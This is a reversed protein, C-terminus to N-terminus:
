GLRLFFFAVSGVHVAVFVFLMATITLHMSLWARRVRYLSFIAKMEELRVADQALKEILTTYKRDLPKMLPGLAMILEREARAGDYDRAFRSFRTGVAWATKAAVAQVEPPAGELLEARRAIIQEREDAVDEEVQSDREIRTIVKPMWKSFALGFLGTTVQLFLLLILLSTIIGGLDLDSHLATALLALGGFWVHARAWLYMPGLQTRGAKDPDAPKDPHPPTTPFRRLRRRAFLASSALMFFLACGGLALGQPSFTRYDPASGYILVMALACALSLALLVLRSRDPKDDTTETRADAAAAGAEGIMQRVEPFYSPEVRIIAKTPCNHVCNAEDFGACLDCKSAIKPTALNKGTVRDLVWRDPTEVMTINDWPCRLACNSCGICFEHIAVEGTLKRHIAGTPCGIMCEPSECHRCSSPLLLPQHEEEEASRRRTLRKGRRTMKAHGHRSECAVVCNGCRTCLDLDITLLSQAIQAGEQMFEDVFIMGTKNSLEAVVPQNQTNLAKNLQDSWRRDGRGMDIRKDARAVVIDFQAKPVEIYELFGMAVLAGPRTGADKLGVVDGANFYALVSTGGRGRRELKAVGSKIILVSHASSGEQFVPDLRDVTAIRGHEVLMALEVPLLASFARHQALFDRVNRRASLSQIKDIVGSAVNDLKELRVKEIELVISPGLSTCTATRLTRGLVAGEGFWAARGGGSELTEVQRSEGDVLTEVRVSGRIIVFLTHGHEGQRVITEGDAYTRLYSEGILKPLNAERRKGTIHQFFEVGELAKQVEALGLVPAAADSARIIM